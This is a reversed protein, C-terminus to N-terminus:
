ADNLKMALEIAPASFPMQFDILHAPSTVQSALVRKPDGILPDDHVRARFGEQHERGIAWFGTTRRNFGANWLEIAHGPATKGAVGCGQECTRRTNALRCEPQLEEALAILLAGSEM